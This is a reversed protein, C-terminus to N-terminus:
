INVEMTIPQFAIEMPIVSDTPTVAAASGMAAAVTPASVTTGLHSLHESQFIPQTGEM